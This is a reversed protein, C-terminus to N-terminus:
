VTTCPRSSTELIPHANDAQLTSLKAMSGDGPAQKRPQQPMSISLCNNVQMDPLEKRRFHNPRRRFKFSKLVNDMHVAIKDWRAWHALKQREIFPEEKATFDTTRFYRDYQVVFMTMQQSVVIAIVALKDCHGVSYVLVEKSDCM